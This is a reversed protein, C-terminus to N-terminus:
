NSDSQILLPIREYRITGSNTLNGRRITDVLTLLGRHGIVLLAFLLVLMTRLVLFRLLTVIRIVRLITFVVRFMVLSLLLLVLTLLVVFLLWSALRMDM